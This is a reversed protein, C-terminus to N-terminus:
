FKTCSRASPPTILLLGTVVSVAWLEKTVVSFERNRCLNGPGTDHCFKPTAVPNPTPVPHSPDHCLNERDHCLGKPRTDHGLSSDRYPMALASLGQTTVCFNKTTFPRCLPRAGARAVTCVVLARILSLSGCAVSRAHAPAIPSKRSLSARDRYVM